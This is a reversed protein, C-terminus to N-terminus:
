TCLISKTEYSFMFNILIKKGATNDYYFAKMSYSSSNLNALLKAAMDKVRFNAKTNKWKEEFYLKYEKKNQEPTQM